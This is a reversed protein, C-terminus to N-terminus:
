LIRDSVRKEKRRVSTAYGIVAKEETGSGEDTRTWVGTRNGSVKEVGNLRPWGDILAAM